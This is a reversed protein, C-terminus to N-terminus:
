NEIQNILDTKLQELKAALANTNKNKAISLADIIFELHEIEAFRKGKSGAKKWLEEIEKYIDQQNILQTINKGSVKSYQLIFKCLSINIGALMDWYSMRESDTPSPASQDLACIAEEYAMLTYGLKENKSNVDSGWNHLESMVLICELAMWNTLSYWNKSYSYAKQYNLAAKAYTEMKDEALVFAKRKFTSGLINLRESSPILKVLLELDTTVKNLEALSETRKQEIIQQNKIENDDNKKALIDKFESTIKKALANYYKEAVSFSFSADEVKFLASFKECAKNYHKLELYVLAEKETIVPTRIKAQDVAESIEELLKIYEDTPKKGIDLENLLNMLDIEAEQSILYCKKLRTKKQRRLEFRFFPDGYCQYAGWTNTNGYKSFVSRRAENVSEGFTYGGLMRDYFVNAFELAANDDVAWGAAIVCRVGNEILQTGINAALKYRQRYFEEAVGSIKGIHCCNVFVLEPATSMQRIERTSLFMNNGIVMGSGKSIDENFIGHGSLHIIRYDNSFMKEIIEDSSGKYSTTTQIGQESLKAAVQQGEKLAGPLQSAFGKLDPDAIVLANNKPSSKIVQNYNQTSLQRIMGSAVCMPRADVIEDQLLEWPYEATYHDLIWNINGHRKLQEKFDNPILLEFIAKASQPTWRNSTSMRYIVGEMLAPTSILEQEKEQARSTSASFTLCRVSKEIDNNEVKKVTIRNWWDSSIENPIRKKSGLLTHLKKEEMIIRFSRTEQKEIRGISYLASVAVDEFLEVFEINNIQPINNLELNRIKQNANHTGQIIGKISNEISLGGYGGGIILSSIGISQVNNNPPNQYTNNEKFSLLYKCVGQEVTKTLESATLNEPKGLGIIIAGRFGSKDSLFLENTGIRGPYIGLSHRHSLSEGLNKNIEKEASLIGDDEFHGALLPYKAYFLDGHSISVNVPPLEMRPEADGGIGLVSLDIGAESLDFDRFDPSKFLLEDGRLSPRKDPFLNTNGNALIEKIGKLMDAHCALEGHSVNTYYVANKDTLIQPIGSNWTVSQDGEGTSLFVLEKGSIKKDIRFNCPTAKDRGAIYVANKLDEEVLADKMKNRYDAFWLLDKPSPVPWKEDGNSDFDIADSMQEWTEPNSFDHEGDFPLLSLLGKFGSFIRLLEEKSHVLDILSLKDILRDMGLLVAPIRYSGNLPAGLFILRFGKSNNLKTWTDKHQVIFDRVLVGGMSHGIIKIPQGLKMLEKVRKDLNAASDELPLRWDFPFAVVDYTDSLEEALRKYSTSVLSVPILKNSTKLGSLGGSIIKIYNIWLSGENYDLNSGMIGPLLLVIPKKGSAEKPKLQGGELKININRESAVSVSLPEDTFGTLQTGWESKLAILIAQNTSSNEFYKFHNIQNDEYFFRLVKGSRRTGSAMSETDVVLDNKRLFFLKSAIIWLANLKLAPKANGAIVVLSNNIVVRGDLNELDITCNLAKIFPSEPNQAELGPLIEPKNKCDIAAATLNRFALYIPNTAIGTGLGILNLSINLFFDLRKSALTTGGAPCAIRIFKEIKIKKNFLIGNIENILKEIEPFYKKYGKKLIAIETANFGGTAGSSNCFRSLVEGVLGGRSTTILHLVCNAPLAAVLEKVNQLPNESLTRHQFALIREDYTERVFNMFDTGEAKGFSGLTSSATGHILLLYPLTSNDPKTDYLQFNASLGFLGTKGHLQKDELNVALKEVEGAVVKKSFVKIAKLLIKGVVSRDGSGSNIEIPLEFTSDGSSSRKIETMLEPFIDDMTDPNSIWNTGDEFEFEIVHDNKFKITKRKDDGRVATEIQYYNLLELSDDSYLSKDLETKETGNFTIANIKM